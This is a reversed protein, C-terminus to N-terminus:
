CVIALGTANVILQATVMSMISRYLGVIPFAADTAASEM